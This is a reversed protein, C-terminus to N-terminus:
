IKLAFISETHISKSGGFASNVKKQSFAKNATISESMNQYPPIVVDNTQRGVILVLWTVTLFHTHNIMKNSADLRIFVKSGSQIFASTSKGASCRTRSSPGQLGWDLYLQAELGLLLDLLPVEVPAQPM